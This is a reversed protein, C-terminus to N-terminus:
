GELLERHVDDHEVRRGRLPLLDGRVEDLALARDIELLDLRLRGLHLLLDDRSLELLEVGVLDQGLLLPHLVVRLGDLLDDLLLEPLARADLGERAELDPLLSVLAAASGLSLGASM